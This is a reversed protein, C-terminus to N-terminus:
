TQEKIQLWMVKTFQFKQFWFSAINLSELSVLFCELCAPDNDILNTKNLCGLVSMIKQKM